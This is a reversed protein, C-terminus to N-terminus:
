CCHQVCLLSGEPAALDVKPPQLEILCKIVVLQFSSISVVHTCLHLGGELGVWKNENECSAVMVPLAPTGILNNCAWRRM